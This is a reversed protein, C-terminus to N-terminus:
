EADTNRLAQGALRAENLDAEHKDRLTKALTFSCTILYLWSVGLFAKYTENVEMRWLGWGTLSMALFFGGWVVFRFMPTETLKNEAEAKEQDRVYKALVFAASLCFFYGMIMFARDLDQGPLYSLGVACLFVAILFSAWVQFQWPKSDRHILVQM